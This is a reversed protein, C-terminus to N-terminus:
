EITDNIFKTCEKNLEDNADIDLNYAMKSLTFLMTAIFNNSKIEKGNYKEMINQLDNIFEDNKISDKKMESRKLVKKTRMLAPMNLPVARMNEVKSKIDKEKNKLTEWNQLVEKEDKVSVNGFIHPHRYVLKKCVTDCIDNFNFVEKEKEMQCHFMVQLLVDGLEERLMNSNNLEIADCVEYVEELFNHKVSEHTQVKDWPCGSIPDRLLHVIKELDCIDYKDKILFESM